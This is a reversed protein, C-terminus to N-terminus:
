LNIFSVVLSSTDHGGRYHCIACSHVLVIAFVMDLWKKYYFNVYMVKPLMNVGLDEMFKL